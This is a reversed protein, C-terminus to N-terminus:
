FFLYLYFRMLNNLFGFGQLHITKVESDWSDSTYELIM